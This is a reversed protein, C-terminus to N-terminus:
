LEDKVTVREGTSLPEEIRLLDGWTSDYEILKENPADMARAEAEERAADDDPNEVDVDIYFMVVKEQYVRFTRM